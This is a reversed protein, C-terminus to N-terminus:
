FQFQWPNFPSSMKPFVSLIQTNYYACANKFNCISFFSLYLTFWPQLQYKSNRFYNIYIYIKLAFIDWSSHISPHISTPFSLSLSPHISTRVIFSKCKELMFSESQLEPDSIYTSTGFINEESIIKIIMMMMISLYISLPRPQSILSSQSQHM